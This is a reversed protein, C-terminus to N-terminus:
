CVPSLIKPYPLSPATRQEVEIDLLDLLHDASYGCMVVDATHGATELEGMEDREDTVQLARYTLMDLQKRVKEADRLVAVLTRYQGRTITKM